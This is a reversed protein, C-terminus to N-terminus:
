KEIIPMLSVKSDEGEEVEIRREVRLGGGGNGLNKWNDGRAKSSCRLCFYSKSASPGNM